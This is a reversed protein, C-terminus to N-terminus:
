SLKNLRQSVNVIIVYVCYFCTTLASFVLLVGFWTVQKQFGSKFKWFRPEHDANVKRVKPKTDGHKQCSM